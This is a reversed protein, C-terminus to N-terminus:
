LRHDFTAVDLPRHALDSGLLGHKSFLLSQQLREVALDDVKRIIWFVQAITLEDHRLADIRGHEAVPFICKRAALSRLVPRIEPVRFLEWSWARQAITWDVIELKRQHRVANRRVLEIREVDVAGELLEIRDLRMDANPPLRARLRRLKEHVFLRDHTAGPISAVIDGDLIARRQLDFPVLAHNLLRRKDYRLAGFVCDPALLHQSEDGIGLLLADVGVNDGIWTQVQFGHLVYLRVELREHWGM